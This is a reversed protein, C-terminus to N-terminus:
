TEGWPNVVDELSASFDAENRTVLALGHLRATAAILADLAGIPRGRAECQAVVRGWEGAVAADVPLIRDEFRNPLDHRLWEDLRCRRRGNDLRQIGYRLEAVTVVSVYLRDEDADALWAVVGPDPRPKAWESIVNTDLLFTM